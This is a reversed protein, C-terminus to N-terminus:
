RALNAAVRNTLSELEGVSTIEIEGAEAQHIIAPSEAPAAFCSDVINLRADPLWRPSEVGQSLDVVRSFPHRFRICLREIAAAWYAERYRVSWAHLEEYSNVGAHQMLWAINTTAIFEPTPTWGPSLDQKGHTPKM